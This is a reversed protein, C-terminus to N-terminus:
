PMFSGGTVDVVIGTLFSSDESCLFAVANVVDGVTGLRKVATEAIHADFIVRSEPLQKTMDTVVKSPAVCNVTIGDAGVESAL